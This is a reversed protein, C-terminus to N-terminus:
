GSVERGKPHFHPVSTSGFMRTGQYCSAKASHRESFHFRITEFKIWLFIFMYCNIAKWNCFCFQIRFFMDFFYIYIYMFICVISFIHCLSLTICYLLIVKYNIVTAAILTQKSVGKLLFNHWVKFDILQNAFCDTWQNKYSVIKWQCTNGFLFIKGNSIIRKLNFIELDEIYNFAIYIIIYKLQKKSGM